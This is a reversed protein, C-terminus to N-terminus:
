NLELTKERRANLFVIKEQADKTNTFVMGDNYASILDYSFSRLEPYYGDHQNFKIVIVLDNIEHPIDIKM